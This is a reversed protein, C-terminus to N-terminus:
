VQRIKILKSKKSLFQKFQEVSERDMEPEIEEYGRLASLEDNINTIFEEADKPEIHPNAIISAQILYNELKRINIQRQLLFFDEPYTNYLIDQMNWGYESALM